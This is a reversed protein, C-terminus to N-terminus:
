PRALFRRLDQPALLRLALMLILAAAGFTVLQSVWGLPLQSIGLGLGAALIVFAIHAGLWRPQLPLRLERRASIIFGAALVWQTLAATAGAGLAGMAPILFANFGLNIVVGLAALRNLRGLSGQATLLTSYIYTLSYAPFAAMLWGFVQGEYPGAEHYLLEMIPRGWFAAALAAMMSVPLLVNVCLRIIPGTDQKQALMRGFMPLLVSAMLLGLMNSVDLLRFAAAYVGAERAGQLREVLLTDARMYVAMLFVLLAYPLSERTIRGIAAMDTSLRFRVGSIRRLVVFGLGIALIYSATQALVFWEIRFQQALGPWFLLVSCVVIMLLKDAVSLLGDLRFRHLAAVNSRVYQMLLNLSHFCVIGALLWLQWARYGLLWGTALVLIAYSATLLLRASLMAPFLEKLRHPERSITRSNYSTLGFDLVIQFMIALNLLAQYTGYAEHGVRNQVTRDILFIWVPKILLNVTLIFAINKVFFRRM